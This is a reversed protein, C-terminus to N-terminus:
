VESPVRAEYVLRDSRVSQNELDRDALQEELHTAEPESKRESFSRQM